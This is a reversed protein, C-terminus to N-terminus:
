PYLEIICRRYITHVGGSTLGGEMVRFGGKARGERVPSNKFWLSMQLHRGLAPERPLPHLKPVGTHALKRTLVPSRPKTKVEGFM